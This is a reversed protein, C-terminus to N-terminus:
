AFGFVAYSQDLLKMRKADAPFYLWTLVIQDAVNSRRPVNAGTGGDLGENSM